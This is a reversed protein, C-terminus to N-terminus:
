INCSTVKNAINLHEPNADKIKQPHLGPTRVLVDFQDLNDLYGDGLQFAHVQFKNRDLNANQDCITIEAGQQSFHEYNSLGEDGLGLLAVKM